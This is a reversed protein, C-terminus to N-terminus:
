KPLADSVAKCIRGRRHGTAGVFVITTAATVQAAVKASLVLPLLLIIIIVVLIVHQYASVACKHVQTALHHSAAQIQLQHQPVGGERREEKDGKTGTDALGTGGGSARVHLCQEGSWQWWVLPRAVCPLRLVRQM